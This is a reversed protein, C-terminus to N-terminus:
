KIVLQLLQLQDGRQVLISFEGGEVLREFFGATDEPRELQMGEVGRVLDGPRLGIQTLINKPGPNVIYFGDPKGDSLYPSLSSAATSKQIGSLASAVEARRIQVASQTSAIEQPMNPNAKTEQPKPPSAKSAGINRLEADNVSLRKIEGKDTEIIVTNRLIGKILVGGVSEKERYVGQRRTAETNIIAYNLRPDNALVTGILKLGIDSEAEAIKDVDIGARIPEKKVPESVKFLNREWIVRYTEIPNSRVKAQPQRIDPGPQATSAMSSEPEQRLIDRVKFAIGAGWYIVLCLLAVKFARFVWRNMGASRSQGRVHVSAARPAAPVNVVRKEPAPAPLTVPAPHVLEVDKEPEPAVVVPSEPAQAPEEPQDPSEPLVTALTPEPAPQRLSANLAKLAAQQEETLQLGENLHRKELLMLRLKCPHLGKEQLTSRIVSENAKIGENRLLRALRRIGFDPREMAAAAIREQVAPDQKISPRKSFKEGPM